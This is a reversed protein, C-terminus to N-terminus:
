NATKFGFGFVQQSGDVDIMLSQIEGNAATAIVAYRGAPLNLVLWPGLTVVNVLERGEQNKVVVSVQALFKGENAFFTLRQGTRPASAREEQSIGGNFRVYNQAFTPGAFLLLLSSIFILNKM